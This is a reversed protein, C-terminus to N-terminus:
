QLSNYLKNALLAYSQISFIILWISVASIPSSITGLKSLDQFKVLELIWTILWTMNLVGISELIDCIDFSPLTVCLGYGLLIRGYNRIFYTSAATNVETDGLTASDDFYDPHDVIAASYDDVDLYSDAVEGYQQQMGGGGGGVLSVIVSPISKMKWLSLILQPSVTAIGGLVLNMIGYSRIIMRLTFYDATVSLCIYMLFVNLFISAYGYMVNM